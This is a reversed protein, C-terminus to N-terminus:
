HEDVEWRINPRYTEPDLEEGGIADVWSEADMQFITLPVGHFQHMYYETLGGQADLYYVPDVGKAILRRKAEELDSVRVEIAGLAGNHYKKINIPKSKDLAESFVIGGDSVAVRSNIEEVELITFTMGFVETYDKVAADLDDVSIAVQGIGMYQLDPV